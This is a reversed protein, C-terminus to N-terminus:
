KDLEADPQQYVGVNSVENLRQAGVDHCYKRWNNDNIVFAAMVILLAIVFVMSLIRIIREMRAMQGEHVFYPVSAQKEQDAM